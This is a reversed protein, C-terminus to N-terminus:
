FVWFFFEEL